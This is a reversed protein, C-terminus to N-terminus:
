AEEESGSEVGAATGAYSELPEPARTRSPPVIQCVNDDYDKHESKFIMAQKLRLTPGFGQPTVFVYAVELVCIVEDGKELVDMGTRVNGDADKMIAPQGDAGFAQCAWEKERRAETTPLGDEGTVPYEVEKDRKLLKLNLRPAWRPDKSPKVIASYKERITEESLSKGNFWDPSNAVATKIIFEDLEQMKDYFAKLDLDNQINLFPLGLTYSPGQGNSDEWEKIGWQAIMRPTQFVLSRGTPPANIYAQLMNARKSMKRPVTVLLTSTNIEDFNPAMTSAQNSDSASLSEELTRLSASPPLSSPILKKARKRFGTRGDCTHHGKEKASDSCTHARYTEYRSRVREFSPVRTKGLRENVLNHLAYLWRSLSDRNRMTALRLPARGKQSVFKNYSARCYKCPLVHGLARFFQLYHLRQLSTPETPYGFTISHLAVWLPPGFVRSQMGNDSGFRRSGFRGHGRGKAM